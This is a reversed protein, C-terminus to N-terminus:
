LRFIVLTYATGTCRNRHPASLGWALVWAALLIPWSMVDTKGLRLFTFLLVSNVFAPVLRQLWYWGRHTQIVRGWVKNGRSIERRVVTSVGGVRIEEITWYEGARERDLHEDASDSYGEDADKEDLEHKGCGVM